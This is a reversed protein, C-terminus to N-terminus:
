QRISGDLAAGSPTNFKCLKEIPGHVEEFLVSFLPDGPYMIFPDGFIRNYTMFCQSDGACTIQAVFAPLGNILQKFAGEICGAHLLPPLLEGGTYRTTDHLGGSPPRFGM